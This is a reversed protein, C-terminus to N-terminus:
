YGSSSFAFAIGRTAALSFPVAWVRYVNLGALTTYPTYRSTAPRPQLGTPFNSIRFM